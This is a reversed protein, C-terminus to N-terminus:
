VKRHGKDVPFKEHTEILKGQDDYIEQWFRLTNEASDVEKFYRASWGSRGAVDLSYCRGGNPRKAWRAFKRENQARSGMVCKSASIGFSTLHPSRIIRM